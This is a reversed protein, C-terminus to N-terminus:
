RFTIGVTALVDHLWGGTHVGAAPVIVSDPFPTSFDRISARVAWHSSLGLEVGAGGILLVRGDVAHAFAGFQALPRPRVAEIGHYLKTGIGAEVFPRLRAQRARFYYYLDGHIAHAHADFATKVEGSRIEFDGDQFTWAGEVALHDGLARGIAADLVYRAGIGVDGTGPPGQLSVYHYKGFGASATAQWEGAWGTAAM